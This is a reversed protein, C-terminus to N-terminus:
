LRETHVQGRRLGASSRVEPDLRDQALQESQTRPRQVGPVNQHPHEERGYYESRGVLVCVFVSVMTNSWEPPCLTVENQM